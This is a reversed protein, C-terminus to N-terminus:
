DFPDSHIGVIGNTKTNNSGILEVKIRRCSIYLIRPIRTGFLHFPQIKRLLPTVSLCQLPWVRAQFGTSSLEAIWHYQNLFQYEM